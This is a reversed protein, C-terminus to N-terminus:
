KSVLDKKRHLSLQGPARVLYILSVELECLDAQRQRSGSHQSPLCADVMKESPLAPLPVPKCERIKMEKRIKQKNPKTKKGKCMSPSSFANLVPNRQTGRATRFSVRYVMSAKFKSSDSLRQRGTSPDFTHAVVEQSNQSSHWKKVVQDVATKM